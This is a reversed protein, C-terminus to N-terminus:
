KYGPLRNKFGAKYRDKLQRIRMKAKQIEADGITKAEGGYFIKDKASGQKVRKTKARKLYLEERKIYEPINAHPIDKIPPYDRGAGVHRWGGVKPGPKALSRLYEKVKGKASKKKKVSYGAGGTRGTTKPM